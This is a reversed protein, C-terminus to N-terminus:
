FTERNAGKTRAETPSLPSRRRLNEFITEIVISSVRTPKSSAVHSSAEGVFV